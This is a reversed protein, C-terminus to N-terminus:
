SFSSVRKDKVLKALKKIERRIAAFSVMFCGMWFGVEGESTPSGTWDKWSTFHANQHDHDNDCLCCRSFPVSSRAAKSTLRSFTNRFWKKALWIQKSRTQTLVCYTRHPRKIHPNGIIDHGFGHCKQWPWIDKMVLPYRGYPTDNAMDSWACFAINEGQHLDPHDCGIRRDPSPHYPAVVLGHSFTSFEPISKRLAAKPWHWVKRSSSWIQVWEFVPDIIISVM